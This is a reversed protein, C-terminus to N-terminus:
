LYADINTDYKCVCPGPHNPNIEKYNKIKFFTIKSTTNWNQKHVDVFCTPMRHVNEGLFNCMEM